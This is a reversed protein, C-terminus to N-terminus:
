LRELFPKRIQLLVLIIQVANDLGIGLLGLINGVLGQALDLLLDSERLPDASWPCSELSPLKQGQCFFGAPHAETRKAPNQAIHASAQLVSVHLGPILSSTFARSSSGTLRHGACGSGPVPFRHGGPFHPLWRSHYWLGKCNTGAGPRSHCM